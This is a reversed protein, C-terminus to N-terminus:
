FLFTRLLTEDFVPEFFDKASVEFGNQRPTAKDKPKDVFSIQM